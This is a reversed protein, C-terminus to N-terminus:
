LVPIAAAILYPTSPATRYLSQVNHVSSASTGLIGLASTTSGTITGQTAVAGTFNAQTWNAIIPVGKNFLPLGSGGGGGGTDVKVWLSTSQNYAYTDGTDEEFWFYGQHPGSAPTPIAPTFALRAAHTGSAMFRNLTSDTM